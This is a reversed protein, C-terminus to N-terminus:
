LHGHKLSKTSAAFLSSSAYTIFADHDSASKAATYTGDISRHETALRDCDEIPPPSIQTQM